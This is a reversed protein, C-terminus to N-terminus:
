EWNDGPRVFKQILSSQRELGGEGEGQAKAEDRYVKRRIAEVTKRTDDYAVALKTLSQDLAEVQSLLTVIEPSIPKEAKKASLEFGFIKMSSM